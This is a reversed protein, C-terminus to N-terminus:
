EPFEIVEQRHNEDMFKRDYTPNQKLLDEISRKLGEFKLIELDTKPKYQTLKQYLTQMKNRDFPESYLKQLFTFLALSSESDESLLEYAIDASKDRDQKLAYLEMLLKKDYVTNDKKISILLKLIEIQRSILGRAASLASLERLFVPDDQYFRFIQEYLTSSEELMDRKKVYRALSLLRAADAPTINPLSKADVQLTQALNGVDRLINKDALYLACTNQAKVWGNLVVLSSSESYIGLSHEDFVYVANERRFLCNYDLRAILSAPGTDIPQITGDQWAADALLEKPLMNTYVTKKTNKQLEIIAMLLATNPLMAKHLHTGPPKYFERTVSHTFKWQVAFVWSFFALAFLATITKRWNKAIYFIVGLLIILILFGLLLQMWESAIYYAVIAAFLAFAAIKKERALYVEHSRSFYVAEWLALLLYALAGWFNYHLVNFLAALLVFILPLVFLGNQISLRRVRFLRMVHPLSFGFVAVVIIAILNNRNHGLIAHFAQALFLYRLLNVLQRLFILREYEIEITIKRQLRAALVASVTLAPLVYVSFAVKGMFFAAVAGLLLFLRVSQFVLMHRSFEVWLLLACFLLPLPYLLLAREFGIFAYAAVLGFAFLIALLFGVIVTKFSREDPPKRLAAAVFAISFVLLAMQSLHVAGRLIPYFTDLLFRFFLIFTLGWLFASLRFFILTPNLKRFWVKM